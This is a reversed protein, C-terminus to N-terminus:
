LEETGDYVLYKNLLDQNLICMQNNPQHKALERLASNLEMLGAMYLNVTDVVRDNAVGGEVYDYEKALNEGSRNGVIFRLWEEDYAKFVKCKAVKLIADRDLRYRNLLATQKRNRAMNNAWAVAQERLNTVYFGLGFDLNKRGFRCIPNEVKETSGHYVMVTSM